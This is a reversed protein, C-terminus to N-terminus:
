GTPDAAEPRDIWLGDPAAGLHVGTAGEHIHWTHDDSPDAVFTQVILGGELEIRLDHSVADVMLAFVERGVLADIAEATAEFGDPEDQAQRSGALVRERDRLHWTPELWLVAGHEDGPECEMYLILSNGALRRDTVRRGEVYQRRFRKFLEIPEEPAADAPPAPRETTM